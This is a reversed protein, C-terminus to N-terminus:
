LALLLGGSSTTTMVKVDASIGVDIEAGVRAFSQSLEIVIGDIELRINDIDSSM